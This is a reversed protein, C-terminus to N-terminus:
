ESFWQGNIQHYTTGNIVKSATAGAPAAQAGAAVGGTSGAMGQESLNNLDPITWFAKPIGADKLQKTAQDYVPQYGKAYNAYINKAIQQIQNRQNNSLVGGNQFRNAITGVWDAYSKGDTILKVQADTIANGATNLKTLSDLLDQDSVSGPTKMAADIRQLYPLGNATLQYAPLKITNAVIRTSANAFRQSALPSYADAPAEQLADSVATRYGMPVNALTGNGSLVTHMWNQVHPDAAPAGAGVGGLLERPARSIEVKGSTQDIQAFADKPVNYKSFEAPTLTRWSAPPNKEQPAEVVKYVGDIGRQWNKSPDLHLSSAADGTVLPNSNQKAQEELMKESSKKLLDMAAGAGGAQLATQLLPAPVGGIMGNADPQANKFYNNQRDQLELANQDGKLKAQYMPDNQDAQQKQLALLMPGGMTPGQASLAAMWGQPNSGTYTPAVTGPANGLDNAHQNAQYQPQAAAVTDPSMSMAAAMNPSMPGQPAQQPAQGQQQGTPMLLSPTVNVADPFGNPGMSGQFMAKLARQYAPNQLMNSIDFDFMAM